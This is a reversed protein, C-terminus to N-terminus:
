ITRHLKGYSQCYPSSYATFLNNHQKSTQDHLNVIIPKLYEIRLTDRTSIESPVIEVGDIEFHKMATQEDYERAVWAQFMQYYAKHLIIRKPELGRKREHIIAACTMDVALCGVRQYNSLDLITPTKSM